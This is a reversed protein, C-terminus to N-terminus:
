FIETVSILMPIEVINQMYEYKHAIIFSLFTLLILIINRAVKAIEFTSMKMPCLAKHSKLSM